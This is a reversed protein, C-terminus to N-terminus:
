VYQTKNSSGNVSDSPVFGNRAQKARVQQQLKKILDLERQHHEVLKYLMLDKRTIMGCVRGDRELVVLHRLGLKRFISYARAVTTHPFVTIPSRDAYEMVDVESRTKGILLDNKKKPHQLDEMLQLFDKCSILGQLLKKGTPDEVVPFANHSLPNNKRTIRKYLMQLEGIHCRAPVHVTGWHMIDRVRSVYMLPAPSSNLYPINMIPILGHYLGHNFSNGILM